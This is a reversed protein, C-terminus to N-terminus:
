KNIVYVPKICCLIIFYLVVFYVGILAYFAIMTTGCIVSWWIGFKKWLYYYLALAILISILLMISAIILISDSAIFGIAFAFICGSFAAMSTTIPSFIAEGYKKTTLHNLAGMVILGIVLSGIYIALKIEFSTPQYGEM